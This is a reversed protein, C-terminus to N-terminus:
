TIQNDIAFEVSGIADDPNQALVVYRIRNVEVFYLQRHNPSGAIYGLPYLLMSRPFVM